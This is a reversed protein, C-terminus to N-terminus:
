AEFGFETLEAGMAQWFRDALAPPMEGRWRGVSQEVAGSTIHGEFEGRRRLVAEGDLRLGLWEGLREAEAALDAVLREYRVLLSGEEAEVERLWTLRNRQDEIFTALVEEESREATIPLFAEGDAQRRRHFALSSMWTDRPDRLVCIMRLPPLRDLPLAWSDANKQAYYRVALSPDGLRARCAARARESFAAWAAEFLDEWLERGSGPEVLSREAWPLPGVVPVQELGESHALSDLNWGAEDWGPITPLRSWHLFYSLYRQEYPYVRDFAVEAATGLLQMLLTTGDRGSGDVLIPILPDEGGGRGM